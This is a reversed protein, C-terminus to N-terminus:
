SGVAKRKILKGKGEEGGPSAKSGMPRPGTIKRLPNLKSGAGVAPQPTVSPEPTIERSPPTRDTELSYRVEQIPELLHGSGLPSSYYLRDFTRPPAHSRTYRREPDEEYDDYQRAPAPNIKKSTKIPLDEPRQIPLEDRGGGSRPSPLAEVPSQAPSISQSVAKRLPSQQPQGGNIKGLRHARALSLAPNSGWMNPDFETDISRQSLDSGSINSVNGPIGGPMGGNLSGPLSGLESGDDEYDIAGRELTSGHNPKKGPVAVPAHLLLSKRHAHYKPDDYDDEDEDIPLHLENAASRDTNNSLRRSSTPSASSPLQGAPANYSRPASHYSDRTTSYSQRQNSASGAESPILPSPSRTMDSIGSRVSQAHRQSRSATSDYDDYDYYQTDRAAIGRSGLSADSLPRQEHSQRRSDYGDPASSATTKSWRSVKPVFSQKSRRDPTNELSNDASAFKQPPTGFVMGSRRTDQIPSPYKGTALPKPTLSDDRDFEDEDGELVTSVRNISDRRGDYGSHFTQKAPPSLQVNGSHNPTSGTGALGEPEYGSGTNARLAEYSSFGDNRSEAISPPHRDGASSIPQSNVGQSQADKLYEVDDLLQNLMDEIKALDNANRGGLGKLARKFVNQRKASSVSEEDFAVRPPRPSSQPQPRPGGLVRQITSDANRDTNKMIMRDEEKIFKKLDEFNQRMEAASRVLTVLIETDRANRQADRVTLHDMLAVIDKSHIRDIGRGTASEYLPSDLGDSKGSLFTERKPNQFVDDQGMAAEYEALDEQSYTKEDHRRAQPTDVSRAYAGSVYGEDHPPQANVPTISPKLGDQYTHPELHTEERELDEVSSRREQSRLSSSRSKKAAAGVAAGAALGAAGAALAAKGHGKSSHSVDDDQEFSFYRNDRQPDVLGSQFRERSEKASIPSVPISHRASSVSAADLGHGIEPMPDNLDPVGSAGLQVPTSAHSSRRHHSSAESQRPSQVVTRQRELNGSPLPSQGLNKSDRSSADQEDIIAAYGHQTPAETRTQHTEVDDRLSHVDQYPRDMSIGSSQYSDVTSPDILSAVNSEVGMPLNVYHPTAAIAAIGRESTGTNISGSDVTYKSDRNADTYSDRNNDIYSDRNEIYSDRFSGDTMSDRLRDNKRHEEELWEDVEEGRSTTDDYLESDPRFNQRKSRAAFSDVNQSKPPLHGKAGNLGPTSLPSPVYAGTRFGDQYTPSRPSLAQPILPDNLDDRYSSVSQVPSISQQTEEYRGTKPSKSKGLAYGAAVGGLGAAGAVLAPNRSRSPTSSGSHNHREINETLSRVSSKEGVNRATEPTRTDVSTGRSRSTGRSHSEGLTRRPVEQIPTDLSEVHSSLPRETSASMISPRTMESDTPGGLFPIRPADTRIRHGHDRETTDTFSDSLTYSDHENHDIRDALRHKRDKDRSNHHKLAAATLVGGAIAAAATDRKSHSSKTKRETREEEVSDARSSRRRRRSDSEATSGRSSRRVKIRESDGRSLVEGPDDDHRNLVVKPKGRINPTSSSKSISRDLGSRSDRDVASSRRSEEFEELNKTTKQQTKMQQLEPMILRRVTDEVMELLRPNTLSVKSNGSRYSAQSQTINSSLQSSGPSIVDETHHSRSSRRRREKVPKTDPEYEVNRRRSTSEVPRGALKEMVKQTIRERSLSRTRAHSPPNLHTTEKTDTTIRELSRSRKRNLPNGAQVTDSETTATHTVPELLSDPPMSSIDSTNEVYRLDRSLRSNSLDSPNLVEVEVPPHASGNSDTSRSVRSVETGDIIVKESTETKSGLSIRRTYSPKRDKGIGTIQVSDSGSGNKSRRAASPTVKVRVSPKSRSKDGNKGAEFYEILLSTQSRNRRHLSDKTTIPKSTTITIPSGDEPISYSTRDTRRSIDTALDTENDMSSPDETPAPLPPRRTDVGM